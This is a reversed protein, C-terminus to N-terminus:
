TLKKGNQKQDQAAEGHKPVFLPHAAPRRELMAGLLRFHTVLSLVVEWFGVNQKLSRFPLESHQPPELRAWGSGHFTHPEGRGEQQNSWM